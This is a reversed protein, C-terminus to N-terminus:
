TEIIETREIKEYPPFSENRKLELVWFGCGCNPCLMIDEPYCLIIEKTEYFFYVAFSEKREHSCCCRSCIGTFDSIYVRKWEIGSWCIVKEM